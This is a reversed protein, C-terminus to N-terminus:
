RRSAISWGIINAGPQRYVIMMVARKGNSLGLTRLNEVSNLVPVVDTLAGDRRQSLSWWPDTTRPRPPRRSCIQYRQAGVDIGGKPSHANASGLARSRKWVSAM